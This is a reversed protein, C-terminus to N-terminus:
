EERPAVKPDGLRWGLTELAKDVSMEAVGSHGRMLMLKAHVLLRVAAEVADKQAVLMVEAPKEARDNAM